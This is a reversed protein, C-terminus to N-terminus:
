ISHQEHWLIHLSNKNLQLPFNLRYLRSTFQVGAFNVFSNSIHRTNNPMVIGISLYTSIPLFRIIYSFLFVLRTDM